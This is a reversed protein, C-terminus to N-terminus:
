NIYNNKKLDNDLHTVSYDVLKARVRISTMQVELFLQKLRATYSVIDMRFMKEIRDEEVLQGPKQKWGIGNGVIIIEQGDEDNSTIVNNNLIKKVIMKTEWGM